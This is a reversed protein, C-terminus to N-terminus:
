IVVKRGSDATAAPNDHRNKGWYVCAAAIGAALFLPEPLGGSTMYPYIFDMPVLVVVIAAVANALAAPTATDELDKRRANRRSLEYLAIMEGGFLALVPIGGAMLDSLYQSETYQFTITNPLTQGWGTLPRQEVAPFYQGTWVQWRYSITQPVFANRGSGASSAFENNLRKAFYSGGFVTAVIMGTVLWRLMEKRKGAWVGLLIAGGITGAIASIEATLILSVAALLLIIAVFRRSIPLEVGFVLCAFGILLIVLLYGALVTWHPFPGTARAFVQYSYTSFVSGGTMHAILRNVAQSRVQQLFALLDVPLSAVLLCAIAMSRESSKRLSVAIARYLILFQFPGILPDLTSISLGSHLDLADLLGFGLWGTCYALLLWDFAQWRLRAQRPAVLILISGVMAILAESLNVNPIPFGKEFGSTIPVIVALLYAGFAPRAAVAMTVLLGLFLAVGDIPKRGVAAGILGAGFVAVAILVLKRPRALLWSNESDSVEARLRTTREAGLSVSATM